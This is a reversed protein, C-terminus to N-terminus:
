AQLNLASFPAPLGGGNLQIGATTINGIPTAAGAAGTALRMSLADTQHTVTNSGASLRQSGILVVESLGGGSQLDCHNQSFDLSRAGPDVISVLPGLLQRNSRVQNGKVSIQSPLNRSAVTFRAASARFMTGEVAVFALAERAVTPAVAVFGTALTGIEAGIDADFRGVQIARWNVIDNPGVDDEIEVIRNDSITLGFFPSAALIGFTRPGPDRPGIESISNHAIDVSGSGQIAIGAFSEQGAGTQGVARVSNGIIQGSAAATLLIGAAGFQAGTGSVDEIMNNDIAVHRIEAEATTAIGAEACERIINRKILLTDHLGAIRIGAGSLEFITNGIIQADTTAEPVLNPLLRIGDGAEDGGSIECDQVRTTNAGLVMAAADSVVTSTEISLSAAPIEAWNIRVGEGNSFVLNRSLLAASINIAARDIQIGFRGGFLISDLVRLEAFAAFQLDGDEDLGFSSRSGFAVPAVVVCEEVKAGLQTGDFAIGHDVREEPDDSFVLVALRRLAVLGANIVTVGHTIPINGLDDEEPAVLLSFRELQIDNATDIQIAGGAGQYVLITGIGQGTLKVANRNTIVIPDGLLYNGAELCVTGGAAEVQNIADQITLSGSNHEEATVCVTCFCGEVETDGGEFEPPWFVRCDLVLGGAAATPFRVVALRCYHRQIGEPPATRLENIQTGATRAEFRWYDMERFRGTADATSFEVTIGSELVLVTGAPPVPILGDSGPADLDVWEAGDTERIVGRQDWRVLRTRRVAVTDDGAGSPVLDANEVDADIAAEFEIERTEANVVAVRLMVGSRHNFERHDDTLEVWDGERFRLIEDRGIRNLVVSENTSGISEVASVVSANERSFKFRADEQNPPNENEDVEGVSHLEVRYLQNEIGSYGDTPPVLCPDEPDEVDVTRTTLRATSPAIEAEWGPIDEDPTQCNTARPVDFTRVQWVTQWRTTTDVGGLAPELLDPREIPTVERQWAVVYALATGGIPLDVPTPWYPQNLYNVFDGEEPSILEDLVGEPDGLDDNTTNPRSRDFVPDPLAPAEDTFNAVGHCELLLGHLYKRGRGIELGGEDTFRIEFGTMTERPVVARGITDVTGARIRREFMEVMENWDSDLVARGQQLFVGAYDRLADFSDRSYDGSM